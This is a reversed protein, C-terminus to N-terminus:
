HPIPSNIVPVTGWWADPLQSQSAKLALKLHMVGAGGGGESWVWVYKWRARSYGVRNMWIGREEPLQECGIVCCDVHFSFLPDSVWSVTTCTYTSVIFIHTFMSLLFTHTRSSISETLCVILGGHLWAIFSPTMKCQCHPLLYGGQCVFLSKVHNVQTRGAGLSFLLTSRITIPPTLPFIASVHSRSM